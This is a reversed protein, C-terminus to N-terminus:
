KDENKDYDEDENADANDDPGLDIMVEPLKKTKNKSNSFFNVYDPPAILRTDGEEVDEFEIQQKATNNSKQSDHKKKQGSGEIINPIHKSRNHRSSKRKHKSNKSKKNKDKKSEKKSKKDKISLKKITKRSNLNKSNNLQKSNNSSASLQKKQLNKLKELNKKIQENSKKCDKSYINVYDDPAFMMTGGDPIDDVDDGKKEM